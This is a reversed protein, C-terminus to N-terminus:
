EEFEKSMSHFHESYFIGIKANKDALLEWIKCVVFPEFNKVTESFVKRAEVREEPHDYDGMQSCFCDWDYKNVAKYIATVVEIEDFVKRSIMQIIKEENTM